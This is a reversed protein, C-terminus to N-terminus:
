HAYIRRPPVDFHSWLQHQAQSQAEVDSMGGGEAFKNQLQAQVVSLILL